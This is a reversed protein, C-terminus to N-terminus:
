KGEEPPTLKAGKLLGAEFPDTLVSGSKGGTIIKPPEKSDAFLDAADTRLKGIQENFRETIFKGKDDKLEDLKLRAKAENTYKVKAGTMASEFDKDFQIAVLEKAHEQEAQEYKTKWESVAADVEEPKKMGKFSEIQQNAAELQTKFQDRAGEAETLKTKHAEIDQGHLGMIKDVLEDTATEGLLKKLDERKMINVQKGEVVSKTRPRAEHTQGTVSTLRIFFAV